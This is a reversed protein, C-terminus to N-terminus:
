REESRIQRSDHDQRKNRPCRVPRCLDPQLILPRPVGKTQYKGNNEAEEDEVLAVVVM